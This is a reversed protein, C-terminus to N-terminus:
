TNVRQTLTKDRRYKIVTASTKYSGKITMEANQEGFGLHNSIFVNFHSSLEELFFQSSVKPVHM